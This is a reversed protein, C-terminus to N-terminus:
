VGDHVCIVCYLVTERASLLIDDNHSVDPVECSIDIHFCYLLKMVDAVHVM